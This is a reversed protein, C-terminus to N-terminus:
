SFILIGAVIVGIIGLSILTSKWSIFMVDGLNEILACLIDFM